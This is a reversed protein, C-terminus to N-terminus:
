LLVEQGGNLTFTPTGTTSITRLRIYYGAPVRASLESATTQTCGIAVALSFVQGNTMRGIEKWDSATSSNTAAIELVITGVAGSALTAATVITCSYRVESERTSSLQFGNAAAATTVFLHSPNNTYVKTLTAAKLAVLQEPSVVNPSLWMIDTSTITYGFLSANAIVKPTFVTVLNDLTITTFESAWSAGAGGVNVITHLSDDVYIISADVNITDQSIDFIQVIAKIAM